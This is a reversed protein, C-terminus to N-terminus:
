PSPLRGVPLAALPLTSPVGRATADHCTPPSAHSGAARMIADVPAAAPGAERAVPMRLAAHSGGRRVVTDPLTLCPLLLTVARLEPSKVSAALRIQV